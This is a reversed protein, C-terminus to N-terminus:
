GRGRCSGLGGGPSGSPLHRARAGLGSWGQRRDSVGVTGRGLQGRAGRLGRVEAAGRGPLGAGQVQERHSGVRGRQERQRSGEIGRARKLAKKRVTVMQQVASGLTVTKPGRERGRGRSGAGVCWRCGAEGRHPVAWVAWLRQSSLLLNQPGRLNFVSGTSRRAEPFPGWARAGSGREGQGVRGAATWAQGLSVRLDVPGVRDQGWSAWWSGM